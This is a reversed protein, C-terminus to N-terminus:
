LNTRIRRRAAAFGVLGVGLLLLSTPEPVTAVRIAWEEFGSNANAFCTQLETATAEAPCQPDAALSGFESYLYVYPNTGTFLSVPVYLFMDGKGSGAELDYNLQIMNGTGSDYVVVDDPFLGASPGLRSGAAVTAGLLDGEARLSIVVRNLTLLPDSDIQNIDLIFEKCGASCLTGAIVVTPVTSLLLSRTFSDDEVFQPDADTNYGQEFDPAGGPNLRVFSDLVGSGAPSFSARVYLAGNLDDQTNNVLDITEAFASPSVSLIMATVCVLLFRKM